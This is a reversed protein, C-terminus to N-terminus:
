DVKTETTDTALMPLAYNGFDITADPFMKKVQEREAASVGTQYLYLYKLLKLDKLALLGKATIKTGVLNLSRLEKLAALHKLGEDTIPTNSLQLKRLQSFAAIKKLSSDSVKAQDLKISVVQKKLQLLDDLLKEAAASATVFNATLYNSERAVPLVMVGAETLASVIASDPADVPATPLDPIGKDNQADGSQLALLVPKIQETQKLENVKKHFDAGTSVWWQLVSIQEKTLQPKGKPPMHDDHDLPLLLREILESEEPKGAIITNGTEGGKLILEQEDLRLKGKQKRSSHCNYCRSRFLPEVVDTYLMAQQIDPIPKMEPASATLPATLYDSGHTISGGLHGTLMILVLLVATTGKIIKGSVRRRYLFYLVVSIAALSIGAWEHPEVLDEEYDGSSSLALGTLAAAVACLMGWFMMMPIAPRLNAFRNSGSLLEFCCALLLIGIPLHVLVPHLRGTLDFFILIQM